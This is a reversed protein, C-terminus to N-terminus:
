QIQLPLGYSRDSSLIQGFRFWLMQFKCAQRLRLVSFKFCALSKPNKCILTLQVKREKYAQWVYWLIERTVLTNRLPYVHAGMISKIQTGIMLVTTLFPLHSFWQRHFTPKPLKQNTPKNTPQLQTCFGLFCHQLTSIQPSSPSAVDKESVKLTLMSKWQLCSSFFPSNSDLFNQSLFLCKSFSVSVARNKSFSINLERKRHSVEM